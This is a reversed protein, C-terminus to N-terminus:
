HVSVPEYDFERAADFAAEREDVLAMPTGDAAHVSFLKTDAALDEIGDVEGQLDGAVVERIYVVKPAGLGRLAEVSIHIPNPTDLIDKSTKMTVGKQGKRRCEFGLNSLHLKGSGNTEPSLKVPKNSVKAVLSSSERRKQNPM